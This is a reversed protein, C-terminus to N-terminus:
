YDHHEGHERDHCIGEQDDQKLLMGHWLRTALVSPQNNNKLSDIRSELIKRNPFLDLIQTYCDIANQSEGDVEYLLGRYFLLTTRDNQVDPNDTPRGGPWFAIAVDLSHRAEQVKKERLFIRGDELPAEYNFPNNYQAERLIEHALDPRGIEHSLLFAGTLYPTLNHPDARIALWIWPMM